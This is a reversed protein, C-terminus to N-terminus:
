FSDIPVYFWLCVFLFMKLNLTEAKSHLKNLANAMCGPTIEHKNEPNAWLIINLLMQLSVSMILSLNEKEM